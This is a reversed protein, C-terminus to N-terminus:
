TIREVSLPTEGHSIYLFTKGAIGEVTQGAETTIIVRDNDKLSVGPETFITFERKTESHFEQRDPTNNGKQSLACIIGEYVATEKEVTAQTQSDRELQKRYVSLHDRFTRALLGAERNRLM